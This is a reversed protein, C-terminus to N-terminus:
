KHYECWICLVFFFGKGSGSRGQFFYSPCWIRVHVWFGSSPLDWPVGLLKFYPSEAWAVTGLSMVMLLAMWFMRLRVVPPKKKNTKHQWWKKQITLNQQTLRHSSLTLRFPPNTLQVHLDMPKFNSAKEILPFKKSSKKLNVVSKNLAVFNRWSREKWM